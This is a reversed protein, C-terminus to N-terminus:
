AAGSGGQEGLKSAGLHRVGHQGGHGELFSIWSDEADGQWWAPPM